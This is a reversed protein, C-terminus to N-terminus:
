IDSKGDGSADGEEEDEEQGDEIVEVVDGTLSEGDDKDVLEATPEDVVVRVEAVPPLVCEARSLVPELAKGKSKKTNKFNPRRPPVGSKNWLQIAETPDFESVPASLLKISM